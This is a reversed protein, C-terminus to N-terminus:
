AASSHPSLFLRYNDLYKRHDFISKENKSKPERLIWFHLSRRGKVVEFPLVYVGRNDLCYGLFYDVEDKTYLHKVAKSSPGNKRVSFFNMAHCGKKIPFVYKCQCKLVRTGVLVLLDIPTDETLPKFVKIGNLLLFACIAQRAAEGLDGKSLMPRKEPFVVPVIKKRRRTKLRQISNENFIKQVTSKALNHKRALVKLPLQLTRRDKLVASIKKKAIELM